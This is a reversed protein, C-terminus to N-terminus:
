HTEGPYHRGDVGRAAKEWEFELPLRWPRGTKAGLWDAYAQLVGNCRVPQGPRCLERNPEDPLSFRGDADQHYAMVGLEDDSSSQERPVHRLALAEDGQDVLANLFTVYEEHTVPFRRIVFGDVWVRLGPGSNPTKSDGGVWCWGAPVYCDDAGLTGEPLLPIPNPQGQPDRCDIEDLRRNFVPYLADHYGPSSLRVVYTGMELIHHAIPSCGLSENVLRRNEYAQSVVSVEAGGSPNHDIGRGQLHQSVARVDSAKPLARVHFSRRVGHGTVDGSLEADRHVTKYHEALARHAEVLDDKHALAARHLQTQRVRNGMSRAGGGRRTEGAQEKARNWVWPEITQELAEKLRSGEAKQDAADIM